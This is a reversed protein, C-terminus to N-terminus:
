MLLLGGSKTQVAILRQLVPPIAASNTRILENTDMAISYHRKNNDQLTLYLVTAKETIGGSDTLIKVKRPHVLFCIAYRSHPRHNDAAFGQSQKNCPRGCEATVWFPGFFSLPSAQSHSMLVTPGMEKLARNAAVAHDSRRAAM